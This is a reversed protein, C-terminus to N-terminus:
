DCLNLKFVNTILSFWFSLTMESIILSLWFWLAIQSGNYLLLHNLCRFNSSGNSILACLGHLRSLSSWLVIGVCSSIWDCITFFSILRKSAVFFLDLLRSFSNWAKIVILGLDISDSLVKETVPSNTAFKLFQSFSSLTSQNDHTLLIFMM